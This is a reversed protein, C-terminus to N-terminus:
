EEPLLRTSLLLLVLFTLEAAELLPSTAGELLEACDARGEAAGLLM